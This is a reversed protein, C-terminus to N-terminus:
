KAAGRLKFTGRAKGSLRVVTVEPEGYGIHGAVRPLRITTYGNQSMEEESVKYCHSVKLVVENDLGKIEVIHHYPINFVGFTSQYADNNEVLYRALKDFSRFPPYSSSWWSDSFLPIYFAEGLSYSDPLSPSLNELNKRRQDIFADEAMVIIKAQRMNSVPAVKDALMANKSKYGFFAAVLEHAHAPKLKIGYNELTSSRLSDACLKSIDHQM